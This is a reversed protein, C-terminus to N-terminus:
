RGTAFPDSFRRETLFRRDTLTKLFAVLDALQRVSMRRSYDPMKSRAGVQVQEAPYGEAFHSSPLIIDSVLDGDTPALAVHGGLAITTAATPAPLTAGKVTHCTNCQLEVFAAQGAAVDGSPLRFGSPSHRGSCAAVLCPAAALLVLPWRSM